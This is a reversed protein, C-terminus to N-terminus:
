QPGVSRGGKELNGMSELLSRPAALFAERATIVEKETIQGQLFEFFDPEDPWIGKEEWVRKVIECLQEDSYGEVPMWKVTDVTDLIREILREERKGREEHVFFVVYANACLMKIRQLFEPFHNENIHAAMESVDMGVVNTYQNAYVAAECITSFAQKMQALSGDLSIELYPDPSGFFDMVGFAQYMDAVYELLMTRGNGTNLQVILSNPHIELKQDIRARACVTEVEQRISDLGIPVVIQKGM